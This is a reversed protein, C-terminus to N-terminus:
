QAVQHQLYFVGHPRLDRQDPSTDGLAQLASISQRSMSAGTRRYAGSPVVAGQSEVLMKSSNAPRVARRKPM